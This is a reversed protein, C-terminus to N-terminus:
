STIGAARCAQVLELDAQGLDWKQQVPLIIIVFTRNARGDQVQHALAQVVEASGMFRHFNPLVLIASGKDDSPALAAISKIAAVPDSASEVAQGRVQLGRDIDWVALPWDHQACLRGIEALADEHEHSQVWLGTFAAAIHEHLTESLKM